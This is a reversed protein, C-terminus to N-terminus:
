SMYAIRQAQAYRRETYGNNCCYASTIETYLRLRFRNATLYQIRSIRTSAYIHRLIVHSHINLYYIHYRILIVKKKKKFM